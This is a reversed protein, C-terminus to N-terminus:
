ASRGYRRVTIIESKRNRPTSACARASSPKPNAPRAGYPSPSSSASPPSAKKETAHPAPPPTSLPPTRPTLPTTAAWTSAKCKSPPTPPKRRTRQYSPPALTTNTSRRRSSRISPRHPVSHSRFLAVATSTTTDSKTASKHRVYFTSSSCLQREPPASLGAAITPSFAPDAPHLM